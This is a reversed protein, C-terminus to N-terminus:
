RESQDSEDSSSRGSSSRDSSGRSPLDAQEESESMGRNALGSSNKEGQTGTGRTQERSGDAQDRNMDTALGLQDSM